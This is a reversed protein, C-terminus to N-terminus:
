EVIDGNMVAFKIRTKMRLECQEKRYNNNTHLNQNITILINLHRRSSNSLTSM